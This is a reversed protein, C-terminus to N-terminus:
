WIFRPSVKGANDGAASTDNDWAADDLHRFDRGAGSANERAWFLNAERSCGDGPDGGRQSGCEDVRSPNGAEDDSDRPM